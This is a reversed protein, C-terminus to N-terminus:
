EGKTFVICNIDKIKIFGLFEYFKITKTSNETLLHMQYVNKYKEKISTILKTGIGKRQYESLVLIDQIFIISYKDGVVRIIGVLKDDIYAGLICLSNEFAKELMEVNDTYNTWNVKEYINLIENNFKRIEKIEM